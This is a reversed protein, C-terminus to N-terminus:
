TLLAVVKLAVIVVFVMTLPVIGISLSKAIYRSTSSNTAGALERGTLFATLAIVAAITIAATLGVAAIATVTTITSITVTSIM